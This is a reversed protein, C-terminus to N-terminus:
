GKTVLAILVRRICHLAKNQHRLGEEQHFQITTGEVRWVVVAKLAVVALSMGNCDDPASWLLRNLDGGLRCAM